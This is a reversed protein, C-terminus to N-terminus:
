PSPLPQGCCPGLDVNGIVEYDTWTFSARCDLIVRAPSLLSEFGAPIEGGFFEPDVTARCDTAAPDEFHGTVRVTDGREPQALGADPHPRYTIWAAGRMHELHDDTLWGPTFRYPTLPGHLPLDLTGTVEIESRGYCHLAELPNLQGIQEATMPSVPCSIEVPELWPDDAAMPTAVFGVLSCADGCEGQDVTGVRYWRLDGADTPPGVIIVRRGAALTGLAEASEDAASRINLGDTVVEAIAVNPIVAAVPETASPSPTPADSASPTLSEATAAVSPLSQTSAAPSASADASAQGIGDQRGGTLAISLLAGGAVAAVAVMGAAIPIWRPGRSDSPEDAYRTHGDHPVDAKAWGDDPRAQAAGCEHCFAARSSRPAGCAHCIAPPERDDRYSM